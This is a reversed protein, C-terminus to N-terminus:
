RWRKHSLSKALFFGPRNSLCVIFIALNSDFEFSFNGQLRPFNKLVPRVFESRVILAWILYRSIKQRVLRVFLEAVHGVIISLHFFSIDRLLAFSLYSSFLYRGIFPLSDHDADLVHIPIQGNPLRLLCLASSIVPLLRARTIWM